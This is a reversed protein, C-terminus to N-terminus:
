AANLVVAIADVVSRSEKKINPTLSLSQSQKSSRCGDRRRSVIPQTAPLVHAVMYPQVSDQFHLSGDMV